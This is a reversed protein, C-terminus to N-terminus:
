IINEWSFRVLMDSETETSSTSPTLAAEAEVNNINILVMQQHALLCFVCILWDNTMHYKTLKSCIHITLLTLRTLTETSSSSMECLEKQTPKSYKMSRKLVQLKDKGSKKQLCKYTYQNRKKAKELKQLIKESQLQMQGHIWNMEMENLLKVVTKMQKEGDSQFVQSQLLTVDNRIGKATM